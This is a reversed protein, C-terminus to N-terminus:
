SLTRNCTDAVENDPIWRDSETLVSRCPGTLM